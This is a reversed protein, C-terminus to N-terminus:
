TWSDIERQLDEAKTVRGADADAKAEQVSQYLEEVTYPKLGSEYLKKKESRLIDELKAILQENELRLFEQVFHIKRLQIDM